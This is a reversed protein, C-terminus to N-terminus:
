KTTIIPLKTLICKMYLSTKPWFTHTNVIAQSGIKSGVRFNKANNPSLQSTEKKATNNAM